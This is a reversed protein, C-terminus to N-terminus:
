ACRALAGQITQEGTTPSGFYGGVGNWYQSAAGPQTWRYGNAKYYNEADGPARHRRKPPMAVM